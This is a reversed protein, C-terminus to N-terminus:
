YSYNLGFSPIPIPIEYSATSPGDYVQGTYQNYGSTNSQASYLLALINEVAFYLEYHTKKNDRKGFISLKIDLPLSPTTRKDEGSKSFWLFKEIFYGEGDAPNYVYIPYSIPGDDSRTSIQVGSAVGFRTYINIRSTPKINVVLNFNHFRHYSPFSWDDGYAPNRNKTWNYSYSLWGDWYRSQLKQLIADVGWVKGEGDMFPTPNLEEFTSDIPVYMRDFIRKYYGEINLNIGGSFEIKSGLVSTWSRNPKGKEINFRKEALYVIDDISSFLGTGASFDLSQVYGSGKFANVDINLRPNIAPKFPISFDKGLLYYHDMRLGLEAGFRNKPTHYEALAYVSTSFLNNSERSIHPSQYQVRLNNYLPFNDGLNDVIKQRDAQNLYNFWKENTILDDSEQIKVSFKEQIGAATLFGAGPEWDYDIRGQVNVMSEKELYLNQSHFNYPENFSDLELLFPYYPSYRDKFADSFVRNSIMFEEDGDIVTKAYGAGTTFKMLMDNRPNWSLGAIIFGQYNTYDLITNPLTVGIGDMGWFGTIRMELNDLFRYNATITGSRIYPAVRISNVVSFAEVIKGMRKALMIVPDYYTIRGMFLIGGKGLLPLSLNFNAASTNVSLEFETETPSPKKSTIDLLGSITHGYRSSFVGHSLQASEVMRPDFISFVGDWHYPNIIYFGDLSAQMDQPDGGRISPQANFFGAYGVGPLLKISNVVDEVVGIEATQALDKGSVAISRGTKTENTGPREAEVVLERGTMVGSLRLGLTFTNGQVTIILRGTEYGPYM